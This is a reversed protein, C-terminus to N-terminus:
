AKSSRQLGTGNALALIAEVIKVYGTCRCINGSLAERVDDETVPGPQDLFAKTTMIIGPTCFGCQLAGHQIFADQIAHLEGLAPALGEITTIERGSAQVALMLCSKVSQGDVLVTCCGCVGEDCGRKTGTLGLEERLADVLLRRPEIVPQYVDGNVKLAVERRTM